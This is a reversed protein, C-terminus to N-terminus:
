DRSDLYELAVVKIGGSGGLFDEILDRADLGLCADELRGLLLQEDLGGARRSGFLRSYFRRRRISSAVLLRRSLPWLLDFPSLPPDSALLSPLQIARPM